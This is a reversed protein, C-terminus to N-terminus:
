ILAVTIGIRLLLHLRRAFTWRISVKDLIVIRRVACCIHGIIELIHLQVLPVLFCTKFHM